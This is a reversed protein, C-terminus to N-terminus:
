MDALRDWAWSLVDVAIADGALDKEALLERLGEFFVMREAMGGLTYLEANLDDSKQFLENVRAEIDEINEM